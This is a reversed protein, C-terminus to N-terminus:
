PAPAARPAAPTARRDVQLPRRIIRAGASPQREGNLWMGVEMGDLEVVTCRGETSVLKAWDMAEYSYDFRAIVRRRTGRRWPVERVVFPKAM